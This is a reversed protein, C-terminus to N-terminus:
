KKKWSLLRFLLSSIVELGVAQGIMLLLATVAFLKRNHQYMDLLSGAMYHLVLAFYAFVLLAYIILECTFIKWNTRKSPLSMKLCEGLL